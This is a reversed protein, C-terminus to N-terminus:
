ADLSRAYDEVFSRFTFSEFIDGKLVQALTGQWTPENLQVQPSQKHATDLEYVKLYFDRYQVDYGTVDRAWDWLRDQVNKNFRKCTAAWGHISRDMTLHVWNKDQVAMTTGYKKSDRDLGLLKWVVDEHQESGALATAKGRPDIWYRQAVSM